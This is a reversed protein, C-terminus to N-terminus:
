MLEIDYTYSLTLLAKYLTTPEGKFCYGGKASIELPVVASVKDVMAGDLNKFWLATPTITITLM